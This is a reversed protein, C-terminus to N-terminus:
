GQEKFNGDVNLNGGIDLLLANRCFKKYALITYILSAIIKPRMKNVSLFSAAFGVSFATKM